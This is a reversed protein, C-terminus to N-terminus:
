DRSWGVGAAKMLLGDVRWRLGDSVRDYPCRTAGVYGNKRFVVGHPQEGNSDSM